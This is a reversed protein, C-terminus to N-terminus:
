LGDGVRATLTMTGAPRGRRDRSRDAGVRQVPASLGGVVLLVTALVVAPIQLSFDVTAHIGVLVIASFALLPREPEEAWRVAALAAVALVLFALLVLGAAPLGVDMPLELWDSHGRDFFAPISEDRYPRFATEFTGLGHGVWPRDEIAEVIRPFVDFRGDGREFLTDLRAVTTDGSLIFNMSFVVVVLSITAAGVWRARGRLRGIWLGAFVIVAISFAALGMRSGTLLLAVTGGSLIIVPLLLRGWVGEALALVKGRTSRDEQAIRRIHRLLVALTALMGLGAYTAYSNRNIFTSTVSDAYATKDFWLVADTETVTMVVGYAAYVGQALIFVFLLLDANRSRRCHLAVLLGFVLYACWALVTQRTADPNVSVASALDPQNLAAAAMAWAPHAWGPLLGAQAQMLGWIAVAGVLAGAVLVAGPLAPIPRRRHWRQAVYALVGASALVALVDVWIPRAGGLPLPSLVVIVLLIWFSPGRMPTSGNRGIGKGERATV